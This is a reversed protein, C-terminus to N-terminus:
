LVLSPGGAHLWNRLGRTVGFLLSWRLEEQTSAWFGTFARGGNEARLLRGGHTLASRLRYVDQAVKRDIGGFQLLFETFRKTAREDFQKCEPCCGCRRREDDAAVSELATCMSQFFVSASTTQTTDGVYTWHAALDFRKRAGDGLAEYAALSVDLNDPVELPHPTFMGVEDPGTPYYEDAPVVKMLHEPEVDDPKAIPKVVPDVYKRVAWVPSESGETVVWHGPGPLYM